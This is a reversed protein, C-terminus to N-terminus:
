NNNEAELKCSGDGFYVTIKRPVNSFPNYREGKSNVFNMMGITVKQGAPITASYTYGSVIISGNIDITAQTWDTMGNNTISVQTDNLGISGNLRCPTPYPTETPTLTSTPEPALPPLKKDIGTVQVIFGFLFFTFLLIGVIKAVRILLRSRSPNTPSVRPHDLVSKSRLEHRYKEEERVKARYAEEEELRKKDESTLAM